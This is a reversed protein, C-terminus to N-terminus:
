MNGAFWWNFIWVRLNNSLLFVMKPLCLHTSYNAYQSRHLFDVTQCCKQKIYPWKPFVIYLNQGNLVYKVILLWFDLQLTNNEKDDLINSLFLFGGFQLWFRFQVVTEIRWGHSSSFLCILINYPINYMYLICHSM